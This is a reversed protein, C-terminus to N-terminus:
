WRNLGKTCLVAEAFAVCDSPALGPDWKKAIGRGKKRQFFCCESFAVETSFSLQFKEQSVIVLRYDDFKVIWIEGM